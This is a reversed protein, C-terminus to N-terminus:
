KGSAGLKDTGRESTYTNFTDLSISEIQVNFNNVVIAQCIAKSYPYIIYDDSNFKNNFEEDISKQKAIIIDKDNTNNLLILWEGRYGSDIVGAKISMAKNGTSGREKLIVVYDKSFVSQLGTSIKSVKNKPIIIYDDEFNAYIDLGGDELRKSPLIVSDNMKYFKIKVKKM